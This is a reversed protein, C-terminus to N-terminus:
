YACNFNRRIKHISKECRPLQLTAVPEKKSDIAAVTLAIYGNENHIPVPM